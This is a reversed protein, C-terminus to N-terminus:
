QEARCYRKERGAKRDSRRDDKMKRGIGCRRYSQEGRWEERELGGGCARGGDVVHAILESMRVAAERVPAERVPMEGRVLDYRQGQLGDFGRPLIKAAGLLVRGGVRLIALRAELTGAQGDVEAVVLDDAQWILQNVDYLIFNFPIIAGRPAHGTSVHNL